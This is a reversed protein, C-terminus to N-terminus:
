RTRPRNPLNPGPLTAEMVGVPTEVRGSRKQETQSSWTKRIEAAREAIQLRTPSPVPGYRYKMATDKTQTQTKPGLWPHRPRRDDEADQWAMVLTGSRVVLLGRLTRREADATGRPLASM